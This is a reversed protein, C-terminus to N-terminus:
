ESENVVWERIGMPYVEDRGPFSKKRRAVIRLSRTKVPTFALRNYQNRETGYDGKAEV